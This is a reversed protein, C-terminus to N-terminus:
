PQLRNLLSRAEEHGLGVAIRLHSLAAPRDERALDVLALNYRTMGLVGRDSSAALAKRLDAAAETLRGDQYYLIGRNLIAETLSPNRQLALTYARLAQDTHGLAGLALAQNYFCEATEPSLAICVRFANIADEYHGLRYACLGQYFNLWFDQPRLDLGSQFQEAALAIKGSRLYSRGLDYHDWASRPTFTFAPSSRAMGLQWAYTARDREIAPSPGLLADAEALVLLAERRAEVTDAEPALRVRLDAWFVVLDLLDIRILREVEPERRGVIPRLLSERAQWIARGSRILARAEEPPPPNVGYRFRVLEALRHLDAAKGDRLALALEDDLERRYVGVTPLQGALDLGRRLASAAESYQRRELYARGDGLATEIDHVRQRYAVSLLVAAATASAASLALTLGKSLTHPRRRRWKRWREALSRNPVGRLPLDSLHRRLDAALAAAGPYRDGPDPRLCKRIIDSLGVSVRPNGLHLPPLADGESGPGRGGLAEYLLLGLSYIDARGDVAVDITRGEHVAAMAAQQEPAMFEPTGGLWAPAPESPVIPGRALHFDLLMPQGDGAILVNSPKIDMHVLNRDHAYQLGDALCAGIWCIAEVYSSRAIYQRYPGQTPVSIPLRAQVQDLADTLQRGARSAPPLDKLVKLIQALSAGGLFPMCLVHVNRDPLVQESYLPVINMHQLRALSLHEERGRPTVKLVVPRDALAPQTALFVQGSVGRGLQAQLRFGALVEGVGPLAAAAPESEMMRHCDLLAGLEDRWRPFRRALDDPDVEMGAELRLCFEEFVLRIASEDGLEPHRALFEEALPREGRRWAAVMEDVQQSALSGSLDFRVPGAFASSARPGAGDDVRHDSPHSAM